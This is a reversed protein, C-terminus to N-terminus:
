FPFVGGSRKGEYGPLVAYRFENGVFGCLASVSVAEDKGYMGLKCFVDFSFMGSVRYKHQYVKDVGEKKVSKGYFRGKRALSEKETKMISQVSITTLGSFITFSPRHEGFRWVKRM